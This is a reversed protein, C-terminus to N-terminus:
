KKAKVANLEAQIKAWNPHIGVPRNKSDVCWAADPTDCKYKKVDAPAVLRMHKILYNGDIRTNGRITYKLDNIRDGTIAYIPYKGDETCGIIPIPANPQSPCSVNLGAPLEEALSKSGAKAAIGVGLLVVGIALPITITVFRSFSTKVNSPLQAPSPNFHICYM